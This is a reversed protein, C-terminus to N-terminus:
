GSTRSIGTAPSYGPWARKSSPTCRIPPSRRISTWFPDRSLAGHWDSFIVRGSLPVQKM